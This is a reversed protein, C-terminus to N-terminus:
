GKRTSEILRAVLKAHGEDLGAAQQLNSATLNEFGAKKKFLQSPEINAVRCIELLRSITPNIRGALVKSVYEANYGAEESVESYNLNRDDLFQRLTARWDDLQDEQHADIETM